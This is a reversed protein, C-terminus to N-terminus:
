MQPRGALVVVPPLPLCSAFRSLIRATSRCPRRCVRGAEPLRARERQLTSAAHGDALRVTVEREVAKRGAGLRDLNSLEAVGGRLDSDLERRVLGRLRRDGHAVENANQVYHLHFRCGARPQRLNAVDRPLPGAHTVVEVPVADIVLGDREAIHHTARAADGHNGRAVPPIVDNLIRTIRRVPAHVNQTSLM